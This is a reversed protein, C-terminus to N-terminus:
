RRKPCRSHLAAGHATHSLLEEGGLQGIAMQKLVGEEPQMYLGLGTRGALNLLSIGPCIPCAASSIPSGRLDCSVSEKLLAMGMRGEYGVWAISRPTLALLLVM